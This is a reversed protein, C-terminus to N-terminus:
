VMSSRSIVVEPLAKSDLVEVFRGMSSLPAASVLLKSITNKESDEQLAKKLFYKLAVLTHASPSSLAVFWKEQFIRLMEKDVSEDEPSEFYCKLIVDHSASISSLHHLIEKAVHVDEGCALMLIDEHEEVVFKDHLQKLIETFKAHNKRWLSALYVAACKETTGKHFFQVSTQVKVATNRKKITSTNSQVQSLLGIAIGIDTYNRCFALDKPQFILDQDANLLKELAVKGLRCMTAKSSHTPLGNVLGAEKSGKRKISIRRFSRCFSSFGGSSKTEEHVSTRDLGCDTEDEAESHKSEQHTWLTKIINDTLECNTGLRNGKDGGIDTEWLHCVITLFLPVSCLSELIIPSAELHRMLGQAFQEDEQFFTLIYSFIDEVKYGEMQLLTYERLTSEKMQAVKSPRSTILVTCETLRRNEIIKVLNGVKSGKKDSKPQKSLADLGDLVIMADNPRAKLFGEIAEATFTSDEPLLHQRIAEGINAGENLKQMPLAFLIPVDKLPSRPHRSMWDLALKAVVTSKGSGPNGQLLIRHRPLDKKASITLIDHRHRQLPIKAHTRVSTDELLIGIETFYRDVAVRSRSDWPLLRASGLHSHYNTELERRLQRIDFDDVKMPNLLLEDTGFKDLHYASATFSVFLVVLFLNLGSM